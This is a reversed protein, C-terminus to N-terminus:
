YPNVKPNRGRLEREIRLRKKEQCEAEEFYSKLVELGIEIQTVADHLNNKGEKGNHKALMYDSPRIEMAKNFKWELSRIRSDFWGFPNMGNIKSKPLESM